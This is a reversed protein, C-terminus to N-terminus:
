ACNRHLASVWSRSRHSGRSREARYNMPFAVVVLLFMLFALPLPTVVSRSSNINTRSIKQPEPALDNFLVMLEFGATKALKTVKASHTSRKIEQARM